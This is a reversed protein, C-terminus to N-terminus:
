KAVAIRYRQAITELLERSSIPQYNFALEVRDKVYVVREVRTAPDFLAPANRSFETKPFRLRYAILHRADILGEIKQLYAMYLAFEPVDGAPGHIRWADALSLKRDIAPQTGTAPAYYIVALQTVTDGVTQVQIYDPGVFGEREGMNTTQKLSAPLDAVPMGAYLGDFAARASPASSQPQQASADSCLWCIMVAVLGVLHRNVRM